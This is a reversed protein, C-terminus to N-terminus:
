NDCICVFGAEVIDPRRSSGLNVDDVLQWTTVDGELLTLKCNPRGCTCEGLRKFGSSRCCIGFARNCKTNQRIEAGSTGTADGTANGQVDVMSEGSAQVDGDTRSDAESASGAEATGGMINTFLDVIADAYVDVVAEALTDQSAMLAGEGMICGSAQATAFAEATGSAIAEAQGDAAACLNSGSCVRIAADVFARAFATAVAAAEARGEACVVNEASGTSTATIVVNAWAVAIATGVASAQERAVLSVDEGAAVREEATQVIEVIDNTVETFSESNSEVVAMVDGEKATASVTASATGNGTSSASARTTATAKKQLLIRGTAKSNAATVCVALLAVLLLGARSNGSM